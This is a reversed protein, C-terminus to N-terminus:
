RGRGAEGELLRRSRVYGDPHSAAYSMAQRFFKPVKNKKEDLQDFLAALPATPIGHAHLAQAAYDDAALEMERSYEMNSLVAPLGAAVASFDGFLTASLAATLSSRTITRVSHRMEIHGVEHALVGALAAAAHADLENNKGMVMRVMDDTLVITGDPFALANPGLQPAAHVRLRLPIRPKFHPPGAPQVRQLLSTLAAIRDESLRSPQLIGQRQLLALANRGLSLDASAPVARSLREAAAPIGWHWAAAILGVLLVVAALAAATHEQWRVVWSKRYDLAAALLPRMAPDAVEAHTGDDFYLVAPAHEFPEALRTATARYSRTTEDGHLHIAGDGASLEVVHLRASRGDFYHAASM